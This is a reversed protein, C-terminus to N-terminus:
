CTAAIGDDEKIKAVLDVRSQCNTEEGGDHRVSSIMERRYFLQLSCCAGCLTFWTNIVWVLSVRLPLVNAVPRVGCVERVAFITKPLSRQLNRVVYMISM